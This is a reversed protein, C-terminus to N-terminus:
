DNKWEVKGISVIVPKLDVLVMFYKDCGGEESDCVIVLDNRGIALERSYLIKKTCYPCELFMKKNM